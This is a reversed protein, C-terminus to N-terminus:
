AARRSARRRSAARRTVIERLVGRGTLRAAELVADDSVIGPYQRAVARPTYGAALLELADAVRVRTGRFILRGGCVRTDAALYKGIELRAM